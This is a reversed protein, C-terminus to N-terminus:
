KRLVYEVQNPEISVRIAKASSKQLKPVLTYAKKLARNFDVVVAFDDETILQANIISTQFSLKVHEPILEVLYDEPSNKLQLPITFSIETFKEVRIQFNMLKTELSILNPNPNILEFEGKHNAKLEQLAIKKTKISKISSIIQKPGAIEISDKSLQIGKYSSFSKAYSVNANFHIPVKKTAKLAYPLNYQVDEININTPSVDVQNAVQSLFMSSKFTYFYENKELSSIPILITNKSLEKKFIKFGTETLSTNLLIQNKDLIENVPVDVFQVKLELDIKHEKSFQLILWLLFTFSTFFLIAKWNATEFANSFINTKKTM